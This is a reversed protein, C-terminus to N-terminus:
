AVKSRMLFIISAAVISFCIMMFTFESQSLARDPGGPAVGLCIGALIAAVLWWRVARWTRTRRQHFGMRAPEQGRLRHSSARRGSCRM